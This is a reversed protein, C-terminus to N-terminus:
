LEPSQKHMCTSQLNVSPHVQFAHHEHSAYCSGRRHGHLRASCSSLAPGPPRSHSHICNCSEVLHGWFGPRAQRWVQRGVRGGSSTNSPVGQMVLLLPMQPIVLYLQQCWLCSMRVSKPRALFVICTRSGATSYLGARMMRHILIWAHDLRQTRESCARGDPMCSHMAINFVAQLVEHKLFSHEPPM